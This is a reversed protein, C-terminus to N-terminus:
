KEVRPTVQLHFQGRYVCCGTALFTFLFITVLAFQPKLRLGSPVLTPKVLRDISTGAHFGWAVLLQGEVGRLTGLLPFGSHWLVSYQRVGGLNSSEGAVVSNHIVPVAYTM